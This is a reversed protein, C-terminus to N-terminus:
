DLFGRERFSYYGNEGIIIHDLLKIGVTDAGAKIRATIDHDEDSPIPDGYPHNHLMIMSTAHHKLASELIDRISVLSADATGRTMVQDNILRQKADLYAIRVEEKELFRLQQTYYEACMTANSFYRTNQSHDSEWIRKVLEGLCLIQMAKIPGVGKIDMLEEFTYHLINAPGGQPRSGYLIKASLSLVDMDKTGTRLLIALLEQNTLAEPGRARCKEYPREDERRDKMRVCYNDM